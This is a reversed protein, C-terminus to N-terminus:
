RQQMCMKVINTCSCMCVGDGGDYDADAFKLITKHDFNHFPFFALNSFHPFSYPILFLAFCFLFVQLLGYLLFVVRFKVVFSVRLHVFQQSASM